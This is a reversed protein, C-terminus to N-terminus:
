AVDIDALSRASFGSLSAAEPGVAVVAGCGAGRGAAVDTPQDGVYVVEEPKLGLRESAFLIMDPAPKANDVDDAGVVIDFLGLADLRRLMEEANVRQGNTAVGLKIGKGRMEELKQRVGPYFSPKFNVSQLRDAENYAEEALCKAEHWRRGSLYVAASAIAVDERRPAKSLPGNMDVRLTSPDVGSLRAWTEAAERGAVRTMAKMRAEALFRYKPEDDLLTGDLDFVVLRCKIKKDGVILTPL